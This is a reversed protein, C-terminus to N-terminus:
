LHETGGGPAGPAGDPGPGGMAGADPQCLGGAEPGAPLGGGSPLHVTSPAEEPTSFFALTIGVAVAGVTISADAINIVPWWAVLRVFDVVSGGHDRVFRDVLNSLAGGSLLGLAIVSVLGAGGRTLRHSVFVVSAALAVAVAVIVPSIGSGLSFAAGRNYTLVLCVPGVLHRCYTESLHQQAWSKTWQDVAIV